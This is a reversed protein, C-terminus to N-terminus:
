PQSAGTPPQALARRAGRGHAKTARQSFTGDEYRMMSSGWEGTAIRRWPLYGGPRMEPCPGKLLGMFDWPGASGPVFYSPLAFNSLRVGGRQPGDADAEVPDGVEVVYQLGDIIPGMRDIKPDALMEMLEHAITVSIESGYRMDDEVFIKSEPIGSEAYHYGLASAQDSNDLLWVNWYSPNPDGARGVLSLTVPDIGWAPCFDETLQAQLAPLIFAFRADRIRSTRNILSIYIM